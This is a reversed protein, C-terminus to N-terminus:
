LLSLMDNIDKLADETLERDDFDSVTKEAETKNLCHKILQLLYRHCNACLKEITEKHFRATEYTMNFTLKGEAVLASIDLSQERNWSPSIDEGNGVPSFTFTDPEPEQQKTDNGIGFQGLYNFSIDPAHSFKIDAKEPPTVYKLIGYGFGKDPVRRLTDKTTKLMRSISDESKEAPTESDLKLLVPYIATFWGVTRSIDLGDLVDERGHSELLVKVAPREAWDQLALVASALLLDQTDTNYAKNVRTLLAETDEEKLTFSVTERKEKASTQDTTEKSPLAEIQYEETERWYEKQRLLQRNEAYETVKDTYAKFSDTKPPLKIDEGNLAQTYGSALDELIVRWSVGDVTLHHAALFLFDGDATRFLGAQFLPGKELDMGHQIKAVHNKIAAEYWAPETPSGDVPAKLEIIQLGYLAEESAGIPLNFQSWNERGNKPFILRLADHHEVIAKLTKRLTEEDVPTERYLMVSQNFHHKEELDQSLFWKQVPSWQVEGEVPGQSANEKSARIYCALEKITPYRFLDKISMQKGYRHLRASVQLAKISDGGLEFFSEDTGIREAGLVETWINALEKEMATEPAQFSRQTQGEHVPQPLARRDLKGNPSLPLADLKLLFAPIMYAPMSSALAARVSEVSTEPETVIYACLEMQGLSTERALVAAEKVGDTRRLVTEVEEIEVRHGRIKIQDDMRGIYELTGDAQWKAMDGTRYMRKGSHFPHPVFTQETLEPLNVYGRALGTGAICLEGAVGIPQLNNGDLIYVQTNNIPKGISITKQRELHRMATTAVSNETPGYENALETNPSIALSRDTLERDAAEGALTVIRLTQVDEPKLVDLLARYLVPVIIMHTIRYYALNHKIALIDKAEEEEPLVVKAGSLLPTFMSTVFGDFAFSFLQLVTDDEHLAYANRRWELTNAIGRHEVMVGKPQGTTGSTYIIYALNHSYSYAPLRSADNECVDELLLVEGEYDAPAKHAAASVTVLLKARSDSLIYNKREAPYEPDLPVYAGGAKWIGLIAATMSFSRPALVGVATDPGVGKTRLTRAIRNSWQDLEQYTLTKEGSVLATAEPTRAAQTQFLEQLTQDQVNTETVNNFGNLLLDKEKQTLISIDRLVTQPSHAIEHLMNLLHSAWREITKKQFLATAYEFQLHIEKNGESAQLTLDFKSVSHSAGAPKLQLGDMTLQEHEINQVVLMADFLPNRSTDRYVDLKEVLEEFPYDQHEYAELATQRVEQLYDTFGKGGEPRTRLALTNVFMGLVPELDEHPRGAIPSGVVIEEQGSLRSLLASYAALLVMYLTSGNERALRNLGSTVEQDLTFSIKDGAFSRVAPRPEDAPLELVPMEGGLQKLWYSEQKEYTDSKKFEQQWVAYDKYQIRLPELKRGAYLAGFERILTNVSVGDSIIHHMDVLLVHRENTERVLGARFLPAQSLDFPRIFADASNEETVTFPVEHHIHQVPEGGNGTEFSTRLSEHRSILAQFAAEMRKRDLKGELELVAPMNYGVGGDELQQLVYMRKQASSVPYTDRKEAPEIAAYPSEELERIVSALGEITPRAFVDKLPVQVGFTKAIRSILATAKLSHGGRDFFDDTIGVPGNKLVDEWLQALKMETLNRPAKYSEQGAAGDPAPLAKRDLKGSPTIPWTNIQVFHAPIMYGPLVHALQARVDNKDRGQIYACLEAEGSDTRTIVAAEQVGELNRLASEIEGPEIRYGRIKVQDDLRGLFEVQGDPLWRALDGTKYMREGPYFPDSLFRETTLEPRNLYGRAVGNGAIYLEGTCGTPLIQKKKNLIYLRLNHIPKGIPIRKLDKGLPCDFYAAEVTTETPGYSNTLEVGPLLEYFRSVLHAGLQEGGAFVRKLGNPVIPVARNKVFALFAHLMSPVFHAATIRKEEIVKIMMEPDKEDGQPLLFVSAGAYPWWFLEWISADFSYSTKHLIMDSENLPYRTQLSQLFNVASQHEIQVGKPTGTSGSTYIIYALSNSRVSVDPNILHNKERSVNINLDLVDGEFSPIEFSGSEVLLLKAGSDKLLFRIREEPYEPDIPVYAGGAKLIAYIGILMEPSRRGTIAIVTESTVGREILEWAVRNARENLEKYSIVEEGYFVAPREPTKAAQKELQHHLTQALPFSTTPLPSFSQIFTKEEEKTLVSIDDLETDPSSVTNEVLRLFFRSWRQITEKEFLSTSYEFQCYLEEENEMVYLSIDFKSIPHDVDATKLQLGDLQLKQQEMNQLTLTTDFLPNRSMDRQVGLMDVLEEFPYDQHEYAELATQRVEQLYESFRKGGEPHTRLALTNVFMGLISELDAYPRGAIPSGVVIEEQGSLRALFATYAALLTMYLTCENKRALQKLGSTIKKSIIFSVKDGAFTRVAPRLKDAPLELVPLEGSLQNLWYAEQKQYTGGSKFEQQWVAYDKYQIRLPELTRHAYLDGFERILTHVSVGDSIIHHMDVLLLHREDTEKILGARLLPAKSLDFPRIFAATKEQECLAFTVKSHIRQVPEGDTGEEFSTRLPEHRSILKKFVTELRGRDLKGELELVAPMNYGVGGDEMQQLVYMRKQASSVPYVEQEPALEIAAYPNEEAERVVAALGEVTPHAFVEQLPVKVGLEKAIRSVLATAKLSHGGRDFFNDRIGVPGDKLVDEWLQALKLETLNRPAAYQKDDAAAEPEPLSRKDVKGNPTLPISEVWGWKLPIMYEPIEEALYRRLAQSDLRNPASYYACLENEGAHDQRIIVAAEKIKPHNQLTMEIEGPEVRYGRIKVQDDTRGIYEINGDESLRAMDGTRFMTAGPRFPDPLFKERTLEENRFYGRAVSSGSIYLEGAIGKPQLQKQKNLIYMHTHDIPKGIPPSEPIHEGPHISYASVVHTESPGYHNHLVTNHRRLVQQFLHSVTLQEGATILHKVGDPFTNAYEEESFMMKIFATPFFVIEANHDAIFAFLQSVDRKIPEPVIHVTGGGALTSFIEQYCVDFAPTAYQLVNTRFNIGSNTFQFHLLNAMSRHELQVGKPKGTTGSTYITYLLDDATNVPKVNSGDEEQASEETYTVTRLAEENVSELLSALSRHSVLHSCCSDQLIFRIREPPYNPDIPVLSGGAKLIGLIGATLEPSREAMIAVPEQRRVGRKRLIRALKNANENLERYTISRDQYTVAQMNPTLEAQKEFMSHITQFAPADAEKKGLLLHKESSTTIDIGAPSIDPNDLIQSVMHTLHGKIGLIFSRDYVGSDYSMKIHIEDGPAVMLYFSYNTEDAVSFHHIQFLEQADDHSNLMDIENQVPYNEFVLIHDILGQKVASHAQIEYLPHYSHAEAALAEKQMRKMLESVPTDAGQVRVPITNIFLGVMNEIGEISSPRGSTVSGFVADDTNNYKQLLIGWLTHFLTSLTVEEKVAMESLRSSDKKSFSFTVHAQGSKQKDKTKNQKPLATQQEYGALYSKWYTIAQEKDQEMLWNIYSGYPRVPELTLPSANIHAAYIQFFEKLVISFCWGDMVIHHFSWLCTYQQKGTKLLSIRMLVDKQLNFGKERDKEKYNEIFESQRSEDLHSIDEEQVTVTRERLVVQQPASVNQNIFITRFIDHRAVLANISDQFFRSHVEGAISFVAQEFYARSDEHLLSHFLMGEQMYSLPYIDQISNAKTM